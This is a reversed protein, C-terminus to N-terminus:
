KEELLRPEVWEAPQHEKFTYHGDLEIKDQPETRLIDHIEEATTTMEWETSRYDKGTAGNHMSMQMPPGYDFLKPRQLFM